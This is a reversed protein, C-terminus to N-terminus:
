RKKLEKINTRGLLYDLSYHSITSLEILFASLILNKNNEYNSIASSSTNLKNALDRMTLNMSLRAEKVRKAVLQNNLKKNTQIKIRKDTLGILYDANVTFIESLEYIRETPISLKNNEWESYVSTVVNLKKAMDKSLLDKEERLFELNNTM